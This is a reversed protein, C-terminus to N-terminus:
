CTTGNLDVSTLNSNGDYSYNWVVPHGDVAISTILSGPATITWGWNGWSDDVHSPVGATYTVRLERGTSLSRMKAIRGDSARYYTVLDAGYERLAYLATASDYTFSAPNQGLPAKQVFTTGSGAFVRRNGDPTAVVVWLVGKPNPETILYADLPSSWGKGFLRSETSRSSDYTRRFPFPGAPLPEGDADRMNGNTVKIPKGVHSPDPCSDCENDKVAVATQDQLENCAYLHSEVVDVASVDGLFMGRNTRNVANSFVDYTLLQASGKDTGMSVFDVSEHGTCAFLTADYDAWANVGQTHSPIVSLSGSRAITFTASSTAESPVGCGNADPVLGRAMVNITHEGLALCAMGLSYPATCGGTCQMFYGDTGVPGDVIAYLNILGCSGSGTVTAELDQGNASMSASVSVTVCYAPRAIGILGLVIFGFIAYLRPSSHRSAMPLCEMSWGQPWDPLTAKPRHVQSAHPVARRVDNVIVSQSM